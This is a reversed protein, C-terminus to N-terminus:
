DSPASLPPVHSAVYVIIFWTFFGWHTTPGGTEEGEEAASECAYKTRWELRLVDADGEPGYAKWLLATANTPPPADGDRKDSKYRDQPVIEGELGTLARDCLLEVVAKQARGAYVGGHLEVRLGERDADAPAASTRLRTLQASLASGSHETLEGAIPIM